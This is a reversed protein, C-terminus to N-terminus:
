KKKEERQLRELALADDGMHVEAVRARDEVERLVRVVVEVAGLATRDLAHRLLQEEVRQGRDLAAVAESGGQAV